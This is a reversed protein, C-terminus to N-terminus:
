WHVRRRMLLRSRHARNDKIFNGFIEAVCSACKVARRNANVTFGGMLLQVGGPLSAAVAQAAALPEGKELRWHPTRSIPKCGPVSACYTGDSLAKTIAASLATVHAQQAAPWGGDAVLQDLIATIPVNDYRIPGISTSDPSLDRQEWASRDTLPEIVQPPCRPTCHTRNSSVFARMRENANAYVDVRTRTTKSYVLM